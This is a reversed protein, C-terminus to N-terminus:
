LMSKLADAIIAVGKDIDELSANSFNMRLANYSGGNPYFSEGPVFAV